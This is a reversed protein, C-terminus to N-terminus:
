VLSINSDINVLALSARVLASINEQTFGNHSDKGTGMDRSKNKSTARGKLSGM